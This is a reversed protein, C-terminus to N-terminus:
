LPTTPAVRNSLEEAILENRAIRKSLPEKSIQSSCSLKLLEYKLAWKNSNPFRELYQEVLHDIEDALHTAYANLAKHSETPQATDIWSPRFLCKSDHKIAKKKIYRVKDETANEYYKFVVARAEYDTCGEPRSAIAVLELVCVDTEQKQEPKVGKLRKKCWDVSVGISESIQKYTLGELRLKKAEEIM